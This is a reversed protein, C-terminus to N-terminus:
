EDSKCQNRCQEPGADIGSHLTFHHPIEFSFWSRVVVIAVIVIVVIVIFLFAILDKRGNLDFSFALLIMFITHVQAIGGNVLIILLQYTKRGAQRGAQGSM